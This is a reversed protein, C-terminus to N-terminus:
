KFKYMQVWGDYFCMTSKEALTQFSIFQISVSATCVYTRTWMENSIWVTHILQSSTTWKSRYCSRNKPSLKGIFTTLLPQLPKSKNLLADTVNSHAISGASSDTSTGFWKLLTDLAPMSTFLSSFLDSFFSSGSSNVHFDIVVNTKLLSRVTHWFTNPSWLWLLSMELVILFTCFSNAWCEQYRLWRAACWFWFQFPKKYKKYNKCQM